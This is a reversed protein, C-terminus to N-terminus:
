SATHDAELMPFLREVLVRAIGPSLSPERALLVACAAVLEEGGELGEARAAQVANSIIGLISGEM